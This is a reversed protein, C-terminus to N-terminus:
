TGLRRLVDRKAGANLRGLAIQTIEGPNTAGTAAMLLRQADAAVEPGRRAMGPKSKLEGREARAALEDYNTSM